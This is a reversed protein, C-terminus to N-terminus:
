VGTKELKLLSLLKAFFPNCLLDSIGRGMKQSNEIKKWNEV